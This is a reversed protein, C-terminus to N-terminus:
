CQLASSQLPRLSLLYSLSTIICASPKFSSSILESSFFVCQCFSWCVWCAAYKNALPNLIHGFFWIWLYPSSSSHRMFPFTWLFPLGRFAVKTHKWTDLALNGQCLANTRDGTVSSVAIAPICAQTQLTLIQTVDSLRQAKPHIIKPSTWLHEFSSLPSAQTESSAQCLARAIHERIGQSLSTGSNVIFSWAKWAPFLWCTFAVLLGSCTSLGWNQHQHGTQCRQTESPLNTELAKPGGGGQSLQMTSTKAMDQGRYRSEQGCPIGFKWDGTAGLNLAESSWRLLMCTM